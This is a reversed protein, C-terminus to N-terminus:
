RRKALKCKQRVLKTVAFPMPSSLCTFQRGFCLLLSRCRHDRCRIVVVFTTSICQIHLVPLVLACYMRILCFPSPRCVTFLYLPRDMHQHRTTKESRVSHKEKTRNPEEPSWHELANLANWLKTTRPFLVVFRHYCRQQIKCNIDVVLHGDDEVEVGWKMNWDENPENEKEMENRGLNHGKTNHWNLANRRDVLLFYFSSDLRRPLLIYSRSMEGRERERGGTRGSHHSDHM